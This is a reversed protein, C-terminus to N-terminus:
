KRIWERETMERDAIEYFVNSNQQSPPQAKADAPKDRRQRTSRMRFFVNTKSCRM